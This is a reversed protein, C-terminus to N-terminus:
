KLNYVVGVEVSPIVAKGGNSLVAAHSGPLFHETEAATGFTGLPFDLKLGANLAVPSGKFPVYAGLALNGWLVFSKLEPEFEADYCDLNEGYGLETINELTVDWQSYYGKLDYKGAGEFSSSVKISPTLGLKAYVTVRDKIPLGISLRVPIDLYTLSLEENLDRFAYIANADDNDNDKGTITTSYEALNASMKFSRIGLGAEVSIPFSPSFSATGFYVALQKAWNVDNAWEEPTSKGMLVPGLGIELGIVPSTPPLAAGKLIKVEQDLDKIKQNCADIVKNMEEISKEQNIITERYHAMTEESALGDHSTTEHLENLRKNLTEIETEYDKVKKRLKKVESDGGGPKIGKLEKNAKDLDEQLTKVKARLEDVVEYNVSQIVDEVNGKYYEVKIRKGDKTKGRVTSLQSQSYATATVVSVVLFLFLKKM